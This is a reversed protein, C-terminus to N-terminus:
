NVAGDKDGKLLKQIEIMGETPTICVPSLCDSVIAEIKKLKELAAYREPYKSMFEDRENESEFHITLDFTDDYERAVGDDAIILQIEGMVIRAKRHCMSVKTM